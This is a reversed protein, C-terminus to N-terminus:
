RDRVEKIDKLHLIDGYDNIAKWTQSAQEVWNILSNYKKIHPNKAENFIM